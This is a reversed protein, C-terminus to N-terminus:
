HPKIWYSIGEESFFIKYKMDLGMTHNERWQELFTLLETTLTPKHDMADMCFRAVKERFLNHQAKHLPYDPYNYEYFLKEETEFHIIAYKTLDNLIESITEYDYKVDKIKILKNEIEILKKHQRDLERVGVSFNDNWMIKDM